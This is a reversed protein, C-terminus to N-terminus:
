NQIHKFIVIGFKTLPKKFNFIPTFEALFAKRKEFIGHGLHQLQENYISLTETEFVHNLAFYKLLANRQQVIKQYQILQQLYGSDSQSIVSDMFRRRTQAGDRIMNLDDPCFLVVRVLESLECSNKKVGNCLIQKRSGRRMCIDINQAREQTFVNGTVRAFSHDFSILETDFRTRFGHGCSLLFVGELFNTKGQANEGTIVNIGPSLEVTEDTYNRFGELHVSNIIM